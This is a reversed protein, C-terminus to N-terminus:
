GLRLGVACLGLLTTSMARVTVMATERVISRSAEDAHPRTEERPVIGGASAFPSTSGLATGSKMAYEPRASWIM